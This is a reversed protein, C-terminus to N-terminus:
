DIIAQGKSLLLRWWVNGTIAAWVNVVNLLVKAGNRIVFWIKQLIRQISNSEQAWALVPNLDPGHSWFTYKRRNTKIRDRWEFETSKVNAEYIELHIILNMIHEILSLCSILNTSWHMCTFGLPDCVQEQLPLQARWANNLRECQLAPLQADASCMQMDNQVLKTNKYAITQATWLWQCHASRLEFISSQVCANCNISAKKYLIM